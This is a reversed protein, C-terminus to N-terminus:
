RRSPTRRCRVAHACASAAILSLIGVGPEPVCAGFFVLIDNPPTALQIGTIETPTTELSGQTTFLDVRSCQCFCWHQPASVDYTGTAIVMKAAWPDGEKSGATVIDRSALDGPSQGLGYIIFPTPTETDQYGEILVSGSHNSRIDPSRNRTFGVPGALSGDSNEAAANRLSHHNLTLIPGTLGIRYGAVGANDFGSSELTMVFTGSPKLDISPFVAAASARSPCAFAAIALPLAM